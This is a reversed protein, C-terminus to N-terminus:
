SATFPWTRMKSICCITRNTFNPCSTPSYYLKWWERKRAIFLHMAPCHRFFRQFLLFLLLFFYLRVRVLCRTFNQKSPSCSETTERWFLFCDRHRRLAAACEKERSFLDVLLRRALEGIQALSVLRALVRSRAAFGRPASANERPESRKGLYSLKSASQDVLLLSYPANQSFEFELLAIKM